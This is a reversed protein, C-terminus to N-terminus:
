YRAFNKETLIVNEPRGILTITWAGRCSTEWFMRKLHVPICFGKRDRVANGELILGTRTKEQHLERQLLLVGDEQPQESREYHRIQIEYDTNMQNYQEMQKKLYVSEEFVALVLVM